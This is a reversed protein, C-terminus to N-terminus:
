SSSPEIYGVKEVNMGPKVYQNNEHPLNYGKQREIRMKQKLLQDAEYFEEPIDMLIGKTGKTEDMVIESVSGLSSPTDLSRQSIKLDSESRPIWGAKMFKEIRSGINKVIRPHLGPLKVDDVVNQQSLPIRKPRGSRSSTTDEGFHARSPSKRSAPISKNQVVPSTKVEDKNNTLNKKEDNPVIFPSDSM